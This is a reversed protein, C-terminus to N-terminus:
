QHHSCLQQQLLCCNLIGWPNSTSVPWLFFALCPLHAPDFDHQWRVEFYLHRRLAPYVHVIWTNYIIVTLCHCPPLFCPITVSAKSSAVETCCLSLGQPLSNCSQVCFELLFVWILNFFSLFPCALVSMRYLLPKRNLSPGWQAPSATCHHASLPYSRGSGGGLRWRFWILWM